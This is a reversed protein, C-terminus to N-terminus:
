ALAVTTLSSGAIVDIACKLLASSCYFLNNLISWRVKADPKVKRDDEDTVGVGSHDLLQWCYCRYCVEAFCQWLLVFWEFYVM